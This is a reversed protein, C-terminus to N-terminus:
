KGVIHSVLWWTYCFRAATINAVGPADLSMWPGVAPRPSIGFAFKDRTALESDGILYSLRSVFRSLIPREKVTKSAWIAGM